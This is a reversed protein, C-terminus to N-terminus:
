DCGLYGHGKKKPLVAGITLSIVAMVVMLQYAFYGGMVQKQIVLAFVSNIASPGATSMMSMLLQLLGITADVSAHNPVYLHITM